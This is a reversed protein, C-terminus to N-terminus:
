YFGQDSMLNKNELVSMQNRLHISENKLDSEDVLIPRYGGRKVRSKQLRVSEVKEKEVIKMTVNTPQLDCEFNTLFNTFDEM